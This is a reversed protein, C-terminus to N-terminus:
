PDNAAIFRIPVRVPRGATQRGAHDRPAIRFARSLQLAATKFTAAPQDDLVECDKLTGDNAVRCEILACGEPREDTTRPYYASFDRWTPIKLWVPRRILGSPQPRNAHCTPAAAASGTAFVIAIAAILRLRCRWLGTM